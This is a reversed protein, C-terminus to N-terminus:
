RRLCQQWFGRRFIQWKRKKAHEAIDFGLCEIAASFLHSSATSCRKTRREELVLSDGIACSVSDRGWTWHCDIGASHLWSLCRILDRILVTRHSEPWEPSFAIIVSLHACMKCSAVVQQALKDIRDTTISHVESLDLVMALANMEGKLSEYCERLLWLQDTFCEAAVDSGGVRDLMDTSLPHHKMWVQLFSQTRGEWGASKSAELATKLYAHLEGLYTTNRLTEILAASLLGRVVRAKQARHGLADLAKSVIQSGLAFCGGLLAVKAADTKALWGFLEDFM